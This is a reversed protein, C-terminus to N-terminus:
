RKELKAIEEKAFAAIEGDGVKVVKQYYEIAKKPKEMQLYAYAINSLVIADNPNIEHAKQFMTLAEPYKHDMLRCVGINSYNEIDKPYLDLMKRSIKEIGEAYPAEELNFLAHNYDQISGKFMEDPEAITENNSWRWADKNKQHLDIIKLIGEVHEELFGAERLSYLKGFHMDLRHPNKQIGTTIYHQAIRFLSDDYAVKAYMYGVPENTATDRLTLTEGQGPQDAMHIVEKKSKHFYYNFHAIFMEPDEPRSNQWKALLSVVEEERGEKMLNQFKSKQDQGSAYITLLLFLFTLQKKM